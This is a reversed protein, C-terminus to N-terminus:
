ESFETTTLVVDEGGAENVDVGDTAAGNDDCQVGGFPLLVCLVVVGLVAACFHGSRRCARRCM